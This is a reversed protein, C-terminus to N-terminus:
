ESNGGVYFHFGSVSEDFTQKIKTKNVCIFLGDVIITEIIKSGFSKNYESLWKKGQHQHYVQGVMEGQIEWWMGSEPFYTTGAVGM